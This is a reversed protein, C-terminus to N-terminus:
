IVGLPLFDLSEDFNKPLTLKKIKSNLLHLVSADQDNCMPHFKIGIYFNNINNNDRLLPLFIFSTVYDPFPSLSDKSYVIINKPKLVKFSEGCPWYFTFSAIQEVEINM